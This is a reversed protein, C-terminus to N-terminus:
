GCSSGVLDARWPDIVESHHSRVDFGRGYGGIFPLHVAPLRYSATATVRVCRQHVGAPNTVDVVVRDPDRGHGAIVDRAAARAWAEATAHDPPAEVYTRAADRAAATVAAKADLVAWANTILLAGVVFILVGFPLAEIGAFQGADDRWDIRTRLRRRTATRSM